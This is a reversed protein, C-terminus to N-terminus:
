AVSVDETRSPAAVDRRCGDCVTAEPAEALRAFGIPEGCRRCAGYSRDDLRHMAQELGALRARARDLAADLSTGRAPTALPASADPDERDYRALSLLTIQRVQERWRDQLADRLQLRELPTLQRSHPDLGM